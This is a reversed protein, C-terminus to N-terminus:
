FKYIIKAVYRQILTADIVSVGSDKDVDAEKLQSQTFEESKAVYRQILTADVVTIDGDGDVDGLEPKTNVYLNTYGTSNYRSELTKSDETVCRITYTYETSDKLDTHVFSTGEVDALKTWSGDKKVYLRYKQAGEIKSWNIITAGSVNEFSTIQPMELFRITFGERDYDSVFEGNADVCRVTYTYTNNVTATKDMYNDTTGSVTALGKWSSGNKIFVRYSYKEGGAVKDWTVKIGSNTVEASKIFPMDVKPANGLSVFEFGNDKAYRQAETNNYGRIKFGEVTPYSESDWVDGEYDYYYYGFAYEGISKVSAPITVEKLNYCDNFAYDGITTVTNPITVSTLGDYYEFADECIVTTGDKIVIQTTDEMDGKYTYLFDGVYVVGDSQNEYWPTYHFAGRGIKKVSSPINVSTLGSEYFAWAEIETVTNPITVSTLGYCFEFASNCIKTTGNKIVLAPTENMYGNCYYLLNNIYVPGDPQNELWQTYSFAGVGIDKVSSPINITGLNYCEFFAYSDIYTVTSPITVSRLYSDYEFASNGIRTVKRGNITSPINLNYSYGYYGVIEVTGDDLIVYDFDSYTTDSGASWNVRVGAEKIAKQVQTDSLSLDFALDDILRQDSKGSYYRANELNSELFDVFLDYSTMTFPVCTGVVNGTYTIGMEPGFRSANQNCWFAAQLTKSSDYPSEYLTGDCCATDGLVTKDFLLQYTQLQYENSFIVCYLEGYDLSLGKADLDYTWVGDGDEDTCAEKKSQWAPWDGSGDHAWIHCYVKKFNNWGASKTDFHLVNGGTMPYYPMDYDPYEPYEPYEPYDPYDPRDYGGDSGNSRWNVSVGADRIAEEIDGDDLGLQAATDDLLQQDSKGSYTRANILKNVLFDVFMAYRTTTFPVCTGVVNGISTVCKEPGFEARNQNRWFAAQAIKSSDEPNEYYTGDCYATDGIVSTDFLLNYTQMGNENSFVVVYLEGDELVVGKADLDYTWVGDGDADTCQEAKSQWAYFSEGNHVWIHCYVKKFNNWGTTTVDFNLVNSYGTPASPGEAASALTVTSFMLILALVLALLKKM